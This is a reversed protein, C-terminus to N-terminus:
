SNANFFAKLGYASGGAAGAGSVQAFSKDFKGQVVKDLHQLGHDLFDIEQAGAGKQEAYVYAAGNPGFLPNNVDNVAFVSVEQLLEDVLTKQINHILGLSAGVPLLEKGSADLFNYGIAKAMGIGGDNTASGGLGIYIEKAGRGIADRILLGTGFTSTKLPDREATSLLVLGAAKALEVYARGEERNLMYSASIERGLPDVTDLFIEEVTDYRSVADLFGDGGDSAVVSHITAEPDASLIGRTLARIVQDASLSGKFKDPVLLVQM